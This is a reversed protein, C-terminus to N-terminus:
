PIGFHARALLDVASPPVTFATSEQRAGRVIEVQLKGIVGGPLDIAAREGVVKIHGGSKIRRLM